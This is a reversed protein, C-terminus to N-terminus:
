KEEVGSWQVGSWEMVKLCQSPLVQGSPSLEVNLVLEEKVKVEKEMEEEEVESM